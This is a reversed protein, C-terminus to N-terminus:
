GGDNADTANQPEIVVRVFRGSQEAGAKAAEATVLTVNRACVEREGDRRIGVVRYQAGDSPTPDSM